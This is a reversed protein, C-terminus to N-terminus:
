LVDVVGMRAMEIGGLLPSMCVREGLVSVGISICIGHM